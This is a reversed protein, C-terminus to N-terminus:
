SADGHCRDVSCVRRDHPMQERLVTLEVVKQDLGPAHELPRGARQGPRMRGGLQPRKALMQRPM